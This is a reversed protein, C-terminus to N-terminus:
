APVEVKKAKASVSKARRSDFMIRYQRFAGAIGDPNTVVTIILGLGGVLPAYTSPLGFGSDLVTFALGNTVLLGGIIAGTVSSIGGMYAFALFALSAFVGFYDPSVNGFRYGSMAGGLGAVFASIAFATVKTRAVSIGVAAAARENARVALMRRGWPSTRLRCTFYALVMVALVCFMGFVPNPISGDGISSKATPGFDWGFITPSPVQAGELGNSWLPNRFVLTQVSLGAALTVIALQVGRVRLAPIAFIVGVVMAGLAGLIPAFPFGIGWVDSMRAIAFGSFGALAMQALSVQGVFGVLIVLSLCIVIGVLTNVSALRWSSSLVFFSAFAIAGIILVKIGPNRPEPAFPLRVSGISGRSGVKVKRILLAGAILVLPVTEVVGPIPAGGASPFWDKTGLYLIISQFMGIALGATAAIGFSTFGGVLAAALAPVVLLTTTSPDITGSIPATLCAFLGVIMGSFVWNGGSILRPSLGILTLRREDEAAARTALGLRTFRNVFFLVIVTLAVIATLLLQNKPLLIDGWLTYAGQPLQASVLIPQSGFALVVASQLVLLVGVSAVLKAVPSSDQLPAFVLLYLLGGLLGTLIVTAIMAPIFGMPDGIHLRWMGLLLDGDKTLSTFIYTAHMAIAGTAINVVGSGRYTVVIGLALAAVLAGSGAGFLGAQVAAKDSFLAGLLLLVAVSFLSVRVIRGTDRPTTTTM